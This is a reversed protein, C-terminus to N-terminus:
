EKIKTRMSICLVLWTGDLEEWPDDGLSAVSLFANIAKAIIANPLELLQLFHHSVGGGVGGAGVAATSPVGAFLLAQKVPTDILGV